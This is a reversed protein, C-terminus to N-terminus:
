DFWRCDVTLAQGDTLDLELDDLEPCALCLMVGAKDEGAASRDDGRIDDVVSCMEIELFVVEFPPDGAEVLKLLEGGFAVKPRDVWSVAWRATGGQDLAGAFVELGESACDFRPFKVQRALLNQVLEGVV